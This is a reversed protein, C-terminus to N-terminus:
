ATVGALKRELSSVVRGEQPAPAPAPEAAPGAAAAAAAAAEELKKKAAEYQADYEMRILENRLAKVANYISQDANKPNYKLFDLSKFRPDLAAALYSETKYAAETKFDLQKLLEAKFAQIIQRVEGSSAQPAEVEAVESRAVFIMPITAAATTYLNGGLHPVIEAFPHLCAMLGIVCNYQQPSLKLREYELRIPEWIGEDDAALVELQAQFAPFHERAKSYDELMFYTSNWRTAVDLSLGAKSSGKVDEWVDQVKPRRLFKHVERVANVAALLHELAKM